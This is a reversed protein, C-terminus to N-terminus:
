ILTVANHINTNITKNNKTYYYINFTDFGNFYNADLLFILQLRWEEQKLCMAIM